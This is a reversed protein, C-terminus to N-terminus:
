VLLVCFFLYKGSDQKWRTRQMPTGTQRASSGSNISCRRRFEDTSGRRGGQKSEPRVWQATKARTSKRPGWAKGLPRTHVTPDTQDQQMAPRVGNGFGVTPDLSFDRFGGGLWVYRRLRDWSFSGTRSNSESCQKAPCHEVKSSFARRTGRRYGPPRNVAPRVNRAKRPPASHNSTQAAFIAGKLGNLAM